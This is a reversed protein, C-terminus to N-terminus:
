SVTGCNLFDPHNDSSSDSRHHYSGMGRITGYPLFVYAYRVSEHDSDLIVSIICFLFLGIFLFFYVRKALGQVCGEM